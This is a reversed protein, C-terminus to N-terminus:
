FRGTLQWFFAGSTLPSVAPGTGNPFRNLRFAGEFDVEIAPTIFTRVGLGTSTLV